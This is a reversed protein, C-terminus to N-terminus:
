TAPDTLQPTFHCGSNGIVGPHFSLFLSGEGTVDLQASDAKDGPVLSIKRRTDPESSCALDISPHSDVSQAQLSFSVATGTPIEGDRLEVGGSNAFSKIAST